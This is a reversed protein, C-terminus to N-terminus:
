QLQMKKFLEHKHKELEPYKEAFRSIMYSHIRDNTNSRQLIGDSTLSLKKLGENTYNLDERAGRIAYYYGNLKKLNPNLAQMPNAGNVATIEIDLWILSDPVDSVTYSDDNTVYLMEKSTSDGKARWTMGVFFFDTNAPRRWRINFPATPIVETPPHSIISFTDPIAVSASDVKNNINLKLKFQDDSDYVTYLDDWSRIGFLFGGWYYSTLPQSNIHGEFVSISNAPAALTAGYFYSYSSPNYSSNYIYGYTFMFDISAVATEGSAAPTNHWLSQMLKDLNVPQERPTKNKSFTLSELDFETEDMSYGFLYGYCGKINMAPHSIPSFGKFGAVVIRLRSDTAWPLEDLDISFQTDELQVHKEFDGSNYLEIDYFDAKIDTWQLNIRNAILTDVTIELQPLTAITGSYSNKSDAAKFGYQENPEFSFDFDSEIFYTDSDWHHTELPIVTGEHSLEAQLENHNPHNFVRAYVWYRSSDPNDWHKERGLLGYIYVNDKKQSPGSPDDKECYCVFLSIFAVALLMIKNLTM